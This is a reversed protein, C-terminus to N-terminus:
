LTFLAKFEGVIWTHTLGSEREGRTPTFTGKIDSYPTIENFVNVFIYLSVVRKKVNRTPERKAQHSRIMFKENKADNSKENIFIEKAAFIEKKIRHKGLGYVCHRM